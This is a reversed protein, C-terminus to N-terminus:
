EKYANWYVGENTTESLGKINSRHGRYEFLWGPSIAHPNLCLRDEIKAWANYRKEFDDEQAIILMQEIIEPDKYWGDADGMFNQTLKSPDENHQGATTYWDWAKPDGRRSVLTPWDVVEMKINFGINTLQEELAIATDYAWNYHKSTMLILEEGNYGSEQILKKAGM